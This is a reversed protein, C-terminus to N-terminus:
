WGNISATIEAINDFVYDPKVEASEMEERKSVGTLVAITTIGARHAGLIDTSLRDGIMITSEKDAKLHKIATEFIYKEPKGIVIPAKETTYHLAGIVMGTGPSLGSPIPYSGDINTAIFDAGKLIQRMAIEVKKLNLERDMGAVVAKVTTTPEKLGASVDFGGETVAEILSPMGVVHMPSGAPYHEHLYDVTATVSSFIQEKKTPIGFGTLKDIYNQVSHTNNNTLLAWQMKHADLAQFFDNLGPMPQTSRWLVGDGDLFVTKIKSFDM